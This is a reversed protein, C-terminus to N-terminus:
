QNKILSNKMIEEEEIIEEADEVIEEQTLIDEIKISDMENKLRIYRKISDKNDLEEKLKTYQDALDEM